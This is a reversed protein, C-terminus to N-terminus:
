NLPPPNPVSLCEGVQVSQGHDRNVFREALLGLRNTTRRVGAIGRRIETLIRGNEEIEDDDVPAITTTGPAFFVGVGIGAETLRNPRRRKRNQAFCILSRLDRQRQGM